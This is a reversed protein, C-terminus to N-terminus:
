FTKGDWGFLHRRIDGFDIYIRNGPISLEKDLFACLAASLAPTRDEPLGISRLTVFAAPAHSGGFLLQKDPELVALVYSEPKGLLDAVLASLRKLCGAEDPVPINAEVKVFPM